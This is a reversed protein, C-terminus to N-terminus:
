AALAKGALYGTTWANQFNFGGTLGDIDIIEGAFYLGPCLKSQMTRFDIERTPVGGCTVFEDKNLSKGEVRFSQATLTQLLSEEEPRRLEAWCREEPLGAQAPIREWLRQPLNFLASTAIRRRGHQHRYRAFTNHMSTADLGNTWDVLVQFHYSTGAFARAGWASLKLVSPGSLGEHTILLAGESALEQAPAQLQVSKFSIGALGNLFPHCVHFSFLSPVAPMTEHGLAAPLVASQALRTGGTALLLKEAALQSGDSLSLAFSGADNKKVTQVTCNLRVSIGLRAAEDTLCDIITQSSDTVPFMRGDAETKLKVGHSAFWDVTDQAQWHHFPGTLERRGRPYYEALSKPDFCAHTVNCRGGGSIKVKALVRSTAELITIQASPTNEACIIAAFFGAAGGGVIVIQKSM